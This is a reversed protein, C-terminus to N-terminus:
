IHILSLYVLLTTTPTTTTTTSARQDGGAPVAAAASPLSAVAVNGHVGYSSFGYVWTLDFRIPPAAAGRHDRFKKPLVVRRRWLARSESRPRRRRRQRRPRSRALTVMSGSNAKADNSNFFVPPTGGTGTRFPDGFASDRQQLGPLISIKSSFFYVLEDLGVLEDNNADLEALVFHQFLPMDLFLEGAELDDEERKAEAEADDDDADANEASGGSGGGGGSDGDGGGGGAEGKAAGRALGDRAMTSELLRFFRATMHECEVQLAETSLGGGGSMTGQTQTLFVATGHSVALFLIVLEDRSLSGNRNFDFLDFIGQLKRQLSANCFVYYMSLVALADIEQLRGVAARSYRSWLFDLFDKSAKPLLVALDSRSLCFCFNLPPNRWREVVSDVDAISYSHPWSARLRPDPVSVDQGM